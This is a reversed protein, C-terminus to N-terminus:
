QINVWNVPSYSKVSLSYKGSENLEAKMLYVLGSLMWGLGLYSVAGNATLTINTDTMVSVSTSSGSSKYAKLTIGNKIADALSQLSIGLLQELELKSCTIDTGDEPCSVLSHPEAYEGKNNLFKTGNGDKRLFDLRGDDTYNTGILALTINKAAAESIIDETLRHYTYPSLSITIASTNAANGIIYSLSDNELPSWSVNISTKLNQIYLTQLSRCHGFAERWSGQKAGFNTTASADFVGAHEIAPSYFMLGRCDKPLKIPDIAMNFIGISRAGYYSFTQTAYTMSAYSDLYARNSWNPDSVAGYALYFPKYTNAPISSYCLPLQMSNYLTYNTRTALDNIYPHDSWFICNIYQAKQVHYEGQNNQNWKTYMDQSNMDFLINSFSNVGELWTYYTGLAGPWASLSIISHDSTPTITFTEGSGLFLSVQSNAEYDLQEDGITVTVPEICYFQLSTNAQLRKYEGDDYLMRGGSGDTRIISHLNESAIRNMTETISQSSTVIDEIEQVTLRTGYLRGHTYIEQTEKIFCIRSDDIGEALLSEYDAKTQIHVLISKRM